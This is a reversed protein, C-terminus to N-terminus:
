SRKVVCAVRPLQETCRPGPDSRTYDRPFIWICRRAAIAALREPKRMRGDGM